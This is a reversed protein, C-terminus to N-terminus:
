SRKRKTNRRVFKKTLGILGPVLFILGFVGLLIKTAPVGIEIGFTPSDGVPDTFIAIYLMLAGIWLLGWLAINEQEPTNQLDNM